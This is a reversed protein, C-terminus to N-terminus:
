REERNAITSPSHAASNKPAIGCTKWGAPRNPSGIGVGNDSIDVSLWGGEASVQVSVESARAHKAVNTVGERVVAEVDGIVAGHILTDVPGTFRVSPVFTLAPTVQPRRDLGRRTSWFRQIWRFQAPLHVHPGAPHHRRHRHRDAGVTTIGTRRMSTLWARSASDSPSCGSFSTIMFTEPLGIM